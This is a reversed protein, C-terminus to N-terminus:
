ADYLDERKWRKGLSNGNADDALMFFEDAWNASPARVATRELLQRILNNLSTHHKSAYHRSATLTREDIAITVNTM